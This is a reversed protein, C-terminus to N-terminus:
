PSHRRQASAPFTVKALPSWTVNPVEPLETLPLRVAVPVLKMLPELALRVNVDVAVRLPPVLVKLKGIM